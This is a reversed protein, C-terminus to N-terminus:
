SAEGPSFDESSALHRSTQLHSLYHSTITESLLPVEGDLQSLLEDLQERVGASNLRALQEIDALRLATLSSLILRQEPSRGPLMGNWPLMDIDDSLAALQFALSRPNTEDALLLDLVPATHLSSMYRRRYTMSSDAIELLAELLPGEHRTAVLLTHRVLSITHLSRELRRGMDLFRWAQGRTMSDMALGGFAALTSVAHDLMDLVDSLTRRSGSAPELQEEGDKEGDKETPRSNPIEKNLELSHVVKWMDTSIRDRVNGIVLHLGKLTAALSGIKKEDFIVSLVEEEPASLLDDAGDIFGPFTQTQYTMARLLQPLEPVEALGSKETLRILIGRLLRVGGEAREAYRGLWFLNDAARSPLDNGARSLEVPKVTASLLSFQNVPGEALVWTDKSGGGQQMSVVLTEASATVRTLGGPMVAFSGDQTATLYARVVFYRPELKSSTMTPATSLNIREQGVYLRPKAKIRDILERREERSLKDGFIRTFKAGQTFAPKIVMRDLNALVHSMAGSEGCWWTPTSPIKLDEGLLRRCLAPLFGLLAPTEVLGCGLANAVAVNGSRVAQVLGPVGLFSDGRLELPDCFDDDLRRLIVDVPQLGGLLKLFVRCDRVTLDGGEVLTYGLYRALYAHEFYTENYPGPSLLVIRPNDRNHPAIARLSDRLTQFFIALRQVRCDRFADPLIRSMVMRNELAYGAGSPAQTRDGLVCISGDSARAIETATLQLYRNGPLRIGHCPRLFGPHAYVLEPPYYGERLLQQPGYLDALIAELLRARQILGAEIVKSEAASILLPIPDLEWPRYMGRPDGYVRYTVGNERILAKAEEWRHTLEPLGLTQLQEIFTRWPARLEGEEGLMEDRATPLREYDLRSQGDALTELM